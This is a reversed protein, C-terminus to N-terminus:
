DDIILPLVKLKWFSKAIETFSRRGELDCDRPIKAVSFKYSTLLHLFLSIDCASFM